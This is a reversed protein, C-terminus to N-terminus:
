ADAGPADGSSALQAPYAELAALVDRAFEEFECTASVHEGHTRLGQKVLKYFESGVRAIAEHINNTAVAVTYEAHAQHPM